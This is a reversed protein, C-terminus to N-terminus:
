ICDEVAKDVVKKLFDYNTQLLANSSFYDKHYTFRNELLAQFAQMQYHKTRESTVISLFTCILVVMDHMTRNGMKKIKTKSGIGKISSIYLNADKNQKFSAGSIDSLNNILCNNHAAANRLFKVIRLNGIKVEKSPYRSYYLDAFNILDGFSLIEVLVWVPFREHYKNILEECYSNNKKQEIYTSVQPHNSLFKEVIEYGDEVQNESIDHMLRVRLFHEISLSLTLVQERLYMDLTSLEQLYAFELNCYKGALGLAVTKESTSYKSYNKEFSKIKFYYNSESLFVLAQEENVINFQIGQKDRMYAIQGVLDLKPRSKEM